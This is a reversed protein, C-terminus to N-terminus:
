RTHYRCCIAFQCFASSRLRFQTSSLVRPFLMLLTALWTLATVRQQTINARQNATRPVPSLFYAAMMTLM